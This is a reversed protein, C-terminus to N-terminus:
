AKEFAWGVIQDIARMVETQASQSSIDLDCFQGGNSQIHLVIYYIGGVLLAAIARFNVRKDKFHEDTMELLGQGAAERANHISKMLASSTSIEWLILRQMEKENLFYNFQNKLLNAIFTQTTPPAEKKVQELLKKSFTLWYDNEIVYTEILYNVNGFYRYILKKNVGAQKAIRNVGLGKYGESKLIEGVAIVLKRKTLEKNKINDNVTM